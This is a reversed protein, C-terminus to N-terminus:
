LGTGAFCEGDGSPGHVIGVTTDDRARQGANEGLDLLAGVVLELHPQQTGAWKKHM